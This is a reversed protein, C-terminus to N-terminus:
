SVFLFYIIVAPIVFVTFLIKICWELLGDSPDIQFSGDGRYSKIEKKNQGKPESSKPKM